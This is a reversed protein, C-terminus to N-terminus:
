VHSQLEKILAPLASRPVTIRCATDYGKTNIPYLWVLDGNGAQMVTLGTAHSYGNRGISAYEIVQNFTIRTM